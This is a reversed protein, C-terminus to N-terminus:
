YSTGQRCQHEDCAPFCPRTLVRGDVHVTVCKKTTDHPRQDFSRFTATSFNIWTSDRQSMNERFHRFHHLVVDSVLKVLFMSCGRRAHPCCSRIFQTGLIRFKYWICKELRARLRPEQKSGKNLGARSICKMRGRRVFFMLFVRDVTAGAILHRPPRARFITAFVNLFSVLPRLLLYVFGCLSTYFSLFSPVSSCYERIVFKKTKRPAECLRLVSFGAVASSAFVM